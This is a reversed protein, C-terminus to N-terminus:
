AVVLAALHQGAALPLPPSTSLDWMSILMAWTRIIGHKLAGSLSELRLLLWVWGQSQDHYLKLQSPLHTPLGVLNRNPRGCVLYCRNRKRTVM